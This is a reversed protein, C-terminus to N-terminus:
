ESSSGPLQVRLAGRSGGRRRVLTGALSARSRKAPPHDANGRHPDRRKEEDASEREVAHEGPRDDVAEVVLEYEDESL